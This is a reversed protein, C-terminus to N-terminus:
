WVIDVDWATSAQLAKFKFPAKISNNNEASFKCYGKANPIIITGGDKDTLKIATHLVLKTASIEAVESPATGTVAGGLLAVVQTKTMNIFSGSLAKAGAIAVYDQPADSENSFEEIEEPDAEEIKVSDGKLTSPQDTWEATAVGASAEIPDAFAISAIRLLM